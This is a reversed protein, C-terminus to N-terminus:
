WDLTSFASIRYVDLAGGGNVKRGGAVAELEHAHLESSQRRAIDLIGQLRLVQEPDRAIADYEEVSYLAGIDDGLAEKLRSVRDELVAANMPELDAEDGVDIGMSRLVRAPEAAFERRFQADDILKRRFAAVSRQLQSVNVSM